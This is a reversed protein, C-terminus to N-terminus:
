KKLRKTSPLVHTKKDNKLNLLSIFMFVVIFVGIAILNVVLFWLSKIDVIKSSVFTTTSTLLFIGFADIATDYSVLRMKESAYFINYVWRSDDHKLSAATTLLFLGAFFASMGLLTKILVLWEFNLALVALFTAVIAAAFTIRIQEGFRQAETSKEYPSEFVPLPENWTKLKRLLSMSSDYCSLLNTHVSQLM